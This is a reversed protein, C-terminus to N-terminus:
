VGALLKKQARARKLELLYDNVPERVGTGAKPIMKELTPSRCIIKQSQSLYIIKKPSRIWSIIKKPEICVITMQVCQRLTM